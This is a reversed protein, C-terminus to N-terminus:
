QGKEPDQKTDVIAQAVKASDVQYTGQSLQEKIRDARRLKEAIWHLTMSTIGKRRPPKEGNIENM